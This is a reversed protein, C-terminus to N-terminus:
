WTKKISKFLAMYNLVLFNSVKKLDVNEYYKILKIFDNLKLLELNILNYFVVSNSENLTKKLKKYDIYFYKWEELLNKKFYKVFKM